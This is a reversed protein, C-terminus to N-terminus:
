FDMNGKLKKTFLNKERARLEFERRQIQLKKTDKNQTEKLFEATKEPMFRDVLVDLENIFHEREEIVTTLSACLGNIEKALRLDESIARRCYLIFMDEWELSNIARRLEDCRPLAAM